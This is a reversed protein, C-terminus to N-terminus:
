NKNDLVKHFLIKEVTLYMVLLAEKKASREKSLFASKRYEHFQKSRFHFIEFLPKCINIEM